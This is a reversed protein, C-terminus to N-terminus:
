TPAGGRGRVRQEQGPKTMYIRSRQSSSVVPTLRTIRTSSLSAASRAASRPHPFHLKRGTSKFPCEHNIPISLTPASVRRRTGGLHLFLPGEQVGVGHTQARVCRQFQDPWGQKCGSSPSSCGSEAGVHETAAWTSETKIEDSQKAETWCTLGSDATPKTRTRSLFLMEHSM